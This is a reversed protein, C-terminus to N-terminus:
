KLAVGHFERGGDTGFLFACWGEAGFGIIGLEHGTKAAQDVIRRLASLDSLMFNVPAEALQPAAGTPVDTLLDRRHRPAGASAKLTERVALGQRESDDSDHLVVRLSSSSKSTGPALVQTSILHRADWAM